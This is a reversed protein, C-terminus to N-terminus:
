PKLKIKTQRVDVFPVEKDKIKIKVSKLIESIDKGELYDQAVVNVICGPLSLYLHEAEDFNGDLFSEASMFEKEMDLTAMKKFIEKVAFNILDKAISAFEREFLVKHSNGTISTYTSSKFKFVRKLEEIKKDM